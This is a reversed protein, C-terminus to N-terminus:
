VGGIERERMATLREVGVSSIAIAIANYEFTGLNAFRELRSVSCLKEM